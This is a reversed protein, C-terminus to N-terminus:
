VRGGFDGVLGNIVQIPHPIVRADIQKVQSRCSYGTAMLVEGNGSAAIKAQWSMAYLTESTQRNAVEHGFTGAMGCCGTEVFELRVGIKDFVDSWTKHAVPANTKETCHGMLRYRKGHATEAKPALRALNLVLWEQPLLVKAKPKAAPEDKYESRYTLTMSPDLGVLTAGTEALADLYRANRAATKAFAGLYGHVHLAKGNSSSQSLLPTLGM